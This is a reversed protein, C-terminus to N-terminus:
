LYYVDRLIEIAEPDLLSHGTSSVMVPDLIVHPCDYKRLSNVVGKIVEANSLMGIKLAAPPIDEFVRDIQDQLFDVPPTHASYVGTTNQATLATIVSMGYVGIASFTKLDAQIGAGGSADSGGITLVNKIM